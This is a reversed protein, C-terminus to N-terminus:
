SYSSKTQELSSNLEPISRVTGGAHGYIQNYKMQKAKSINAHQEQAAQKMLEFEQQYKVERLIQQRDRANLTNFDQQKLQNLEKAVGPQISKKKSM